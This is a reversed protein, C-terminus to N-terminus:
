QDILRVQEYKFGAGDQVVKWVEFTANQRDGYEDFTIVGSVGAYDQGIRKIEASIDAASTYGVNSIAELVLKTADYVTDNYTGPAREFRAEYQQAFTEALALGAPAVPNTGIVNDRMFAAAAADELTRDAKVGESTIWQATDLGVQAAQKFVIQADDQYGAHVVVDPNASKLRQLESQYDLKLPDYKIYSVVKDAGVLSQVENGIGIGYQNDQVIIGVRQYGEDAIIQAMARGQLTDSPATRIFYQRWSQQGIEPSTASPSVLLVGNDAAWQGAAMAAGSIMPGIIVKVQNVTALKKIAEFGVTPDTKGDEVILKVEAGDIGGAANIQEVALIIGDRIPGGIGSLAGTLDMVVGITIDDPTTATPDTDGDNSCAAFSFVMVLSMLLVLVKKFM